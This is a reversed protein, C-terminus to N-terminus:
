GTALHATDRTERITRDSPFHVSISTGQGLVSDTLLRAGHARALRDVITLGLGSGETARSHQDAVQYFPETIKAQHDAPIGPGQDIVRLRIGGDDDYDAVLRVLAGPPSFKVANSALNLLIQDISDADARLMPKDPPVEVHVKAREAAPGAGHSMHTVLQRCRYLAAAVDVPQDQLERGGAEIRSLDLLQNVQSLLRGGAAHIDDVYERNKASGLAGFVESQLMESFGIIANLPTRLEHSVSALFQSKAHIAANMEELRHRLEANVGRLEAARVAVQARLRRRESTLRQILLALLLSLASGGLFTGYTLAEQVPTHFAEEGNFSLVWRRGAFTIESTHEPAGEAKATADFLALPQAPPRQAEPVDLPGADYVSLGTRRFLDAAPAGSVMADVSVGSTIFGIFQPVSAAGTEALSALRIVPMVLVQSVRSQGADQSLVVPATAQLRGTALAQWAAARRDPDSWIDYGFVQSNGLQPEVLIAPFRVKQETEPWVEFAPYSLEARTPDSVLQRRLATEDAPRMRRNFALARVGPFREVLDLSDVYNHFAGATVTSDTALFAATGRLLQELRDAQLSLLATVRETELQFEAAARQNARTDLERALLTASAIGIVVVVAPLGRTIWDVLGSLGILGQGAAHM